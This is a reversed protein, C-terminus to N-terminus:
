EKIFLKEIGNYFEIATSDLEGHVRKNYVSYSNRFGIGLYYMMRLNEEQALLYNQSQFTPNSQKYVAQMLTDLKEFNQPFLKPNARFIKTIDKDLSTEYSFVGLDFNNEEIAKKLEEKSLGIVDSDFGAVALQSKIVYAMRHKMPDAKDTVIKLRQPKAGLLQIKKIAEKDYLTTTLLNLKSGNQLPILSISAEERYADKIGEQIDIIKAIEKRNLSQDFPAKKSNFAIFDFQRTQYSQTEFVDYDYRKLEYYNSEIIDIAKATFMNKRIASDAYINAKIESIYPKTGYYNDNKKLLIDKGKNYEVVRYMGNGIVGFTGDNLVANQGISKSNIIPFVLNYVELSNEKALDLVINNGAVTVNSINRILHSYPSEPSSKIHSITFAVDEASVRSGDHWRANPNISVILSKGDEGVTYGAALEKVLNYNGDYEFLSDYVLRFFNDMSKEKNKYPDVSRFRSVSIRLQGGEVPKTNDKEEEVVPPKEQTEQGQEEKKPIDLSLVLVYVIAGLIALAILLRKKLKSYDKIKISDRRQRKILKKNNM